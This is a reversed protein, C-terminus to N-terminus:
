KVTRYYFYFVTKPQEAEVSDVLIIAKGDSLFYVKDSSFISTKFAIEQLKKGAAIDWIFVKDNEFNDDTDVCTALLKNDPSFFPHNGDFKQLKSGDRVNWLTTYTPENFGSHVTAIINGNPSFCPRNDEFRSLMKKSAIDWVRCGNLIKRGDNMSEGCTVILKEDSSLQSDTGDFQCLENGASDCILSKGNEVALLKNDHLFKKAARKYLKKGTSIEKVWGDVSVLKNDPSVSAFAYEVQETFIERGREIDYIKIWGFGSPIAENKRAKRGRYSIRGETNLLYYYSVALKGDASFVRIAGQVQITEVKEGNNKWITSTGEDGRETGQYIVFLKGDPSFCTFEGDFTLEQPKDEFVPLIQQPKIEQQVPQKIEHQKSEVPQLQKNKNKEEEINALIEKSEFENQAAAKKYWNLAETKDEKVSIGKYYCHGMTLQATTLGKDAAKRYWKVAEDTSKQVGNVTAYCFGLDYMALAFDQDASKQLLRIADVKDEKVGDGLLLCMALREQAPAFNQEASKRFWKVAEEHNLKVGYGCFYCIGQCFQAAVSGNNAFKAARQNLNSIKTKDIPCVNLGGAYCISLWCLADPNDKEAENKLIDFPTDKGIKLKNGSSPKNERIIFPNDGKDTEKKVFEKDAECLKDLPINAIQTNPLEISVIGNECNVFDGTLKHGSTATWDRAFTLSVM